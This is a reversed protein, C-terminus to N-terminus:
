DWRPAKHFASLSILWCIQGFHPTIKVLPCLSHSSQPTIRFFAVSSSFARKSVAVPLFSLFAEAKDEDETGVFSCIIVAITIGRNEKTIYINNPPANKPM